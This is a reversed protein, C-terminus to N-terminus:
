KASAPRVTGDGPLCRDCPLGEPACGPCKITWRGDDTHVVMTSKCAACQHEVHVRQTPVHLWRSGAYGGSEWVRVAQDYCERCVTVKSESTAAMQHPTACGGLIGAVVALLALDIMTIMPKM